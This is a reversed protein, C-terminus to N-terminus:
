FSDSSSLFGHWSSLFGFVPPHTPHLPALGSGLMPDGNLLEFETSQTCPLLSDCLHRQFPWRAQLSGGVTCVNWVWQCGCRSVNGCVRQDGLCCNCVERFVLMTVQSGSRFCLKASPAAGAGYLLGPSRSPFNRKRKWEESNRGVTLLAFCCKRAAHTPFLLIRWASM